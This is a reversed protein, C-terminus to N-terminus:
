YTLFSKYLVKFFVTFNQAKKCLMEVRETVVCVKGSCVKGVCGCCKKSGKFFNGARKIKTQLDIPSEVGDGIEKMDNPWRSSLNYGRMDQFRIRLVSDVKHSEQKNYQTIAIFSYFKLHPQQFVLGVDAYYRLYQNHTNYTLILEIWPASLSVPWLCTLFVLDWLYRKRGLIRSCTEVVFVYPAELKM